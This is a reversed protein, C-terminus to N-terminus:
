TWRLGLLEAEDIVAAEGEIAEGNNSIGSGTKGLIEREGDGAGSFSFPGTLEVVVDGL